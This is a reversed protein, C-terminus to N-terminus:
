KFENNDRKIQVKIIDVTQRIVKAGFGAKLADDEVQCSVQGRISAFANDIVKDKILTTASKM